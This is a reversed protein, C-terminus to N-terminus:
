PETGDGGWIDSPSSDNQQLRSYVMAHAQKKGGSIVEIEESSVIDISPLDNPTSQERSSTELFKDLLSM